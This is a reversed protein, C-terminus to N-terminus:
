TEVRLEDLLELATVSLGLAAGEITGFAHAATSSMQAPELVREGFLAEADHGTEGLLTQLAERIGLRLDENM